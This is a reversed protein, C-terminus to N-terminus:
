AGPRKPQPLTLPITQKSGDPRAGYDFQLKAVLEGVNAGEGLLKNHELLIAPYDAQEVAKKIASQPRGLLRGICKDEIEV